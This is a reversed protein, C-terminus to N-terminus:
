GGVPVCKVDTREFSEGKYLLPEGSTRALAYAFCDLVSLAAAHRSKGYFHFAHRAIDAQERSVPMVQVAAELLFLDLGRSGEEGLRTEASMATEVLSVASLLRVPDREIAEAFRAADAEHFLIATIASPHIVM